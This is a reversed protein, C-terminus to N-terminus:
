WVGSEETSLRGGVRSRGRRRRPVVVIRYRPRGRGYLRRSRLSGLRAYHLLSTLTLPITKTTTTTTEKRRRHTTQTHTHATSHQQSPPRPLLADTKLARAQGEREQQAEREKRRGEREGKIWVFRYRRSEVERIRSSSWKRCGDVDDPRSEVM